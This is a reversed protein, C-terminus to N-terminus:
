SDDIKSELKSIRINLRAITVNAIAIDETIALCRQRLHEIEALTKLVLKAQVVGCAAHAKAWTALEALDSDSMIQEEQLALYSM